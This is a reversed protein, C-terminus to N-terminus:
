IDIDIQLNSLNERNSPIVLKCGSQVSEVTKLGKIISSGEFLSTINSAEEGEIAGKLVYTEKSKDYEFRYKSQKKFAEPLNNEIYEQVYADAMIKVKKVKVNNKPPWDYNDGGVTVGTIWDGDDKSIIGDHDLDMAYKQYIEGLKGVGVAANNIMTADGSDVNGDLNVDGNYFIITGVKTKSDNNFKVIHGTYMEEVGTNDQKEVIYKQNGENDKIEKLKNYSETKETVGTIFTEGEVCSISFGKQVLDDCVAETTLEKIEEDTGKYLLDTNYDFNNQMGSEEVAEKLLALKDTDEGIKGMLKIKYIEKFNGKETETKAEAAKKLIGNEGSLMSIAVGALILLVIITIVLAILTIGKNRKM